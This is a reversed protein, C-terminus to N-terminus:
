FTIHPLVMLKYLFIDELWKEQFQIRGVPHIFRSTEFQYTVQVAKELPKLHSVEIRFFVSATLASIPYKNSPISWKVEYFYYDSSIAKVESIFDICYMWGKKRKWTEILENIKICGLAIDFNESSPWIVIKTKNESDEEEPISNNESGIDSTLSPFSGNSDLSDPYSDTSEQSSESSDDKKSSTNM